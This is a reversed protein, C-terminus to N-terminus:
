HSALSVCRTGGLRQMKLTWTILGFLRVAPTTDRKFERDAASPSLRAHYAAASRQKPAGNM